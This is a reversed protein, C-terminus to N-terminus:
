EYEEHLSSLSSNVNVWNLAHGIIIKLLSACYKTSIGIYLENKTSRQHQYKKGKNPFLVFLDSSIAHVVNIDDLQVQISKLHALIFM